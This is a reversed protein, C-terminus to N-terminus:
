RKWSRNLLVWFILLHSIIVLPAYFTYIYWITSLNFSPVNLSLVGRLGNLLDAFGLTNTVWVLPVAFRWNSRLAFISALALAAALLDGYAAGSLFEGPLRPDIMGTVLLTMGVYRPVHVWLLPILAANRPLKTLSPWVYWAAVISFVACSVLLQMWFIAVSGM